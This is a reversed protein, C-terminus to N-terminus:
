QHAHPCLGAIKANPLQFQLTLLELSREAVYHVGSWSRILSQPRHSSDAALPMQQWAKTQDRPDSPPFFSSVKVLQKRVEMAHQPVLIHTCTRVCVNVCM